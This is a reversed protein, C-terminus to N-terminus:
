QDRRQEVPIVEQEYGSFCLSRFTGRGMVVKRVRLSGPLFLLGVVPIFDPIPDIPSFVYGISLALFVKAYWSDSSRHLGPLSHLDGEQLIRHVKGYAVSLLRRM